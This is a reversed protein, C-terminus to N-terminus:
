KYYKEYYKEYNFRYKDWFEIFYKDKMHKKGKDDINSIKVHPGENTDAHGDPSWEIELTGEKNVYTDKKRLVFDDLSGGAAEEAVKLLEDQDKVYKRVVEQGASNTITKQSGYNKGSTTQANSKTNLDVNNSLNHEKGKRKENKSIKSEVTQSQIKRQNKSVGDTSSKKANKLKDKSLATTTTSKKGINGTGVGADALGGAVNKVAGRSPTVEVDPLANTRPRPADAADDILGTAQSAKKRNTASLQKKSGFADDLEGVMASIGSDAGAKIAQGYDVDAM